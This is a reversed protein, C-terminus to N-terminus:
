HGESQRRVAEDYVRKFGEELSVKLGRGMMAKMRSNDCYRSHVGTPMSPQCSINPIYGALSAFIGAVHAFTTLVGSGINVASGDRIVEIAKFMVDVCDDIHVFDRGQNGPGWITLPDEHRAARAAIAPVPYSEDQDGGYGSFPRVCAVSLHYHSAAIKALYEGTLKSWGYTTDPQPRVLPDELMEEQLPQAGPGQLDIPYAASSSAYLIRAPKNRVAWSWFDADISLDQAVAMPDGEIKVRGGVVAALHFVNDFYPVASENISVWPLGHDTFSKGETVTEKKFWARCDCLFVKTRTQNLWKQPHQGTSLDDVVWVEHGLELAKMVVHRGVFGCGGTVLTRVSM